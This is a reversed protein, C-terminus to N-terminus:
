GQFSGQLGGRGVPSCVSRGLGAWDLGIVGSGMWAIGVGDERERWGAPEQLERLGHGTM